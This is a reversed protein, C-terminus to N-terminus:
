TKWTRKRAILWFVIQGASFMALSLLILRKHAAIQFQRMTIALLAIYLLTMVTIQIRAQLLAQGSKRRFESSVRLKRRLNELRALAHHPNEHAHRLEEAHAQLFSTRNEPQLPANLPLFVHSDLLARLWKEWLKGPNSLRKEVAARFSMGTKMALILGNIFDPFETHIRSELRRRFIFDCSSLSAILLLFALTQVGVASRARFTVLFLFVFVILFAAPVRREDLLNKQVLRRLTRHAIVIGFFLQSSLIWHM